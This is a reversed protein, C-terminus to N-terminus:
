PETVTTRAARVLDLDWQIAGLLGFLDELNRGLRERLAAEVTAAGGQVVEPHVRLTAFHVSGVDYAVGVEVGWAEFPRGTLECVALGRAGVGAVLRLSHAPEAESGLLARTFEGAPGGEFLSALADVDLDAVSAAETPPRWSPSTWPRAPTSESM